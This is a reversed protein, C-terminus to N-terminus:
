ALMFNMSRYIPAGVYRASLYYCTFRGKSMRAFTFTLPFPETRLAAFLEVFDVKKRLLMATCIRILNDCDEFTHCRINYFREKIRGYSFIPSLDQWFVKNTM